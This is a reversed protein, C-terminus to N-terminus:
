INGRIHVAKAFLAIAEDGPLGSDELRDLALAAETWNNLWALRRAEQVTGERPSAPDAFPQPTALLLIGAAILSLRRNDQGFLM